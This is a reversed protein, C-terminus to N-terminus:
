MVLGLGQRSADTCIRTAKTVDFFALVLTTMSCEQVKTLAQDHETTWM